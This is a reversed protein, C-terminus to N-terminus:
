SEDPEQGNRRKHENVKHLFDSTAGNQRLTRRGNITNSFANDGRHVRGWLGSIFIKLRSFIDRHLRGIDSHDMEDIHRIVFQRFRLWVRQFFADSREFMREPVLTIDAAIEYWRLGLLVAIGLLSISFLTIWFFM